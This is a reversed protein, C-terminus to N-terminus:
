RYIRGRDKVQGLLDKNFEKMKHGHPYLPGVPEGFHNRFGAQNLYASFFYLNLKKLEIFNTLSNIKDLLARREMENLDIIKKDFNIRTIEEIKEILSDISEHLKYIEVYDSIHQFQLAKVKHSRDDPFLLALVINVPEIASKM